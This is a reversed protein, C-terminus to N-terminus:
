VREVRVDNKPAAEKTWYRYQRIIGTGRGVFEYRRAVRGERILRLAAYNLGRPSLTGKQLEESEEAIDALTAGEGGRNRLFGLILPDFLNPRGTVAM